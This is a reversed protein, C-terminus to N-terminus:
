CMQSTSHKYVSQNNVWYVNYTPRCLYVYSHLPNYISNFVKRDESRTGYSMHKTESQEVGLSMGQNKLVSKSLVAGVLTKHCYRLDQSM